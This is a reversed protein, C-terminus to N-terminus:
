GEKSELDRVIDQLQLAQQKFRKWRRANDSYGDVRRYSKDLEEAFFQPDTNASHMDADAVVWLGVAADRRLFNQRAVLVAMEPSAAMVTGVHEMADLADRRVFVQYPEFVEASM